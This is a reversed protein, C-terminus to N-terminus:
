TWAPGLTVRPLYDIEMKNVLRNKEKQAKAFLSPEETWGAYREVADWVIVKEFKDFLPTDTDGTLVHVDRNYDGTVTYADDPVPWFELGKDPRVSFEIPRGTAARSSGFLRQDQFYNWDRYILWTEDTVGASTLYLRFTKVYWDDLGPSSILSKAYTSTGVSLPLSFAYRMFQWDRHRLQIDEYADQVWNVVRLLEGIQGVVTVPTNGSANGAIGCESRTRQCLELFTM